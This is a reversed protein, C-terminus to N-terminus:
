NFCNSVYKILLESSPNKNVAWYNKRKKKVKDINVKLKNKTKKAAM